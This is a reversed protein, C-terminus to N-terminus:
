RRHLTPLGYDMCVVDFPIHLFLVFVKEVLSLSVKYDPNLSLNSTVGSWVLTM